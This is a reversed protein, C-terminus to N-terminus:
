CKLSKKKNKTFIKSLINKTTNIGWALVFPQVIEWTLPVLSKGISVYDSFKLPKDNNWKNIEDTGALKKQKILPKDSPFILSTLGSVMLRPANKQVYLFEEGLKKEQIDIKRSILAKRSLLKDLQNQKV